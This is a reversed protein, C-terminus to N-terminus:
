SETQEDKLKRVLKSLAWVEIPRVYEFQIGAGHGDKTWRVIGPIESTEQTGPLDIILTVRSSFEPLPSIEIFMGGMSLNLSRGKHAEGDVFVLQVEQGYLFRDHKRKGSM